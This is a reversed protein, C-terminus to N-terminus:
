PRDGQLARVREIQHLLLEETAPHDGYWVSEFRLRLDRYGPLLGEVTHARRSLEREYDRNSKYRAVVILRQDALRALFALFLARLALRWEGRGRLDQVMSLWADPPLEDALVEERTLDPPAPVSPGTDAPTAARKRRWTRIFLWVVALGLVVVLLILLFQALNQLSAFAAPAGPDPHRSPFLRKWWDSINNTMERVWRGAARVTQDVWRQWATTESDVGELVEPPMRWVFKRQMSVDDAVRNFDEPSPQALIRSSFIPTASILSLLLLLAPRAGPMHVRLRDRLDAGSRASVAYYSRLLYWAKHLPDLTFHTFLFVTLAFSVHLYAFPSRVFANEVGTFWFVMRPFLVLVTLWNFFTLLTLPFKAALAYMYLERARHVSLHFARRTVSDEEGPGLAECVTLNQFFATVVPHLVLSLHSLPTLLLSFPQWLMQRRFVRRVPEATQGNHPHLLRLLEGAFRTQWFKLWVYLGAVPLAAPFASRAALPSEWMSAGYILVAVVFPVVGVGYLVWAKAPARSLLHVAEELLRTM